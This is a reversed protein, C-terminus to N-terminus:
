RKSASKTTTAREMSESRARLAGIMGALVKEQPWSESEVDLDEAKVDGNVISDELSMGFAREVGLLAQKWALSSSKAAEDGKEEGVSDDSEGSDSWNPELADLLKGIVSGDGWTARSFDCPVPPPEFTGILAASGAEVALKLRERVWRLDDFRGRVPKPLVWATQGTEKHYFYSRRDQGDNTAEHWGDLPSM